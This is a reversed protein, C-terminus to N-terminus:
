RGGLQHVGVNVLLTDRRLGLRVVDVEGIHGRQRQRERQATCSGECHTDGLELKLWLRGLSHRHHEIWAVVAVTVRAGILVLEADAIPFMGLLVREHQMALRAEGVDVEVHVDAVEAAREVVRRTRQCEVDRIRRAHHRVVLPGESSVGELRPIRDLAEVNKGNTAAFM